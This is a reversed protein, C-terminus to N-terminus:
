SVAAVLPALDPRSVPAGWAAATEALAAAVDAAPRIPAPPPTLAELAALLQREAELEAAKVAQRLAEQQPGPPGAVADKLRRRVQRLPAIAAGQWARAAEAARRLVVGDVPRGQDLAWLRWLLLPVCQGHADQLALCAEAVGPAAYRRVADDWLTPTPTPGPAPSM